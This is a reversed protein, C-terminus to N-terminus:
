KKNWLPNKLLDKVKGGYKLGLEQEDNSPDFTQGATIFHRWETGNQFGVYVVGLTILGGREAGISRLTEEVVSFAVGQRGVERTGAPPLNLDFITGTMLVSKEPHNIDAITWALQARLIPQASDNSVFVRSFLDETTMSRGVIKLPCGQQNVFRAVNHQQAFLVSTAFIGVLM